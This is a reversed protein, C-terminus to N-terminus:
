STENGTEDKVEGTNMDVKVTKKKAALLSTLEEKAELDEKNGFGLDFFDERKAMGDKISKYISKLTVIETAITADLKHGLRKELHEVKVGLDDFAKVMNRVQEKIPVDSSAQTRECQQIAAETIDGPIIRLICGRLHRSGINNVLERIDREDTLKTVGKRTTRKHPVIFSATVCYNTELDIATAMAETKDETQNMIDIQIRINGFKQALVEALRISPGTVMKGGRPYAYIAQDALSIRKCSEIVSMYAQNENRRDRKAMLMSAQILAVAKSEQVKTGADLQQDTHENTAIENIMKEDKRLKILENGMRTFKANASRLMAM